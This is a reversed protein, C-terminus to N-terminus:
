ERRDCQMDQYGCDEKKHVKKHCKKCYTICKDIDASELPEWRIGEIHHCHLSKNSGCKRCIYKDRKFVLQRLEPQVERSLQKINLEEASYKIKRYIPCEQKCENSCYLRNERNRDNNGILAEIRNIVSKRKPVYWKGCYACKVELIKSDEHNRRVEECYEIQHAYTDYLPINKKTVNGKWACMSDGTPWIKCEKRCYISNNAGLFEEKCTPCKKWYVPIHNGGDYQKRFGGKSKGIGNNKAHIIKDLYDYSLKDCIKRNKM